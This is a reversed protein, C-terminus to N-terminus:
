EVFHATEPHIFLRIDRERLKNLLDIGTLDEPDLAVGLEDLVATRIAFSLRLGWKDLSPMDRDPKVGDDGLSRFIVVGWDNQWQKLWKVYRPDIWADARLYAVWRTNAASTGVAIQQKLDTGKHTAVNIREDTVLMADTTILTATWNPDRQAYLSGLARELEYGDGFVVFHILPGSM